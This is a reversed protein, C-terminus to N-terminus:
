YFKKKEKILEQFHIIRIETVIERYMMGMKVLKQWQEGRRMIYLACKLKALLKQKKNLMTCGGNSCKAVMEGNSDYFEAYKVTDSNKQYKLESYLLLAIFDM